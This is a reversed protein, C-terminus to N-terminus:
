FAGFLFLFSWFTGFHSWFSVLFSWFSVLILSFLVLHSGYRNIYQDTKKRLSLKKTANKENLIMPILYELASKYLKLADELNGEHDIKVAQDIISAAKAHSEESPMHELDLFKHNFFEAYEIRRGPDRELCRAMLDRCPDSIKHGKPIVIPQECKIKQVLEELTDSKYPAKGFLCEYLIVGVSWLDVKADYPHGLFM